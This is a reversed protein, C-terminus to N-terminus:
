FQFYAFERVVTMNTTCALILFAIGAAWIPSPRWGLAYRGLITRQEDEIIEQTNPLTYSIVAALMLIIIEPRTLASSALMMLQSLRGLGYFEDPLALLSKGTEGVLGAQGTLSQLVAGAHELTPSRFFVWAFGVAIMTMGWGLLSYRSNAVAKIGRLSRWRHNVILYLGHLGGWIIFNWSAGHWMGGLLMTIMLNAYRRLPGKRNGGLPIYLYDRLWTSLTIHWRKWFEIISTSKYPSNFNYPLRIGFMRALGVAMDSYASFDFYLGFGFALVGIWSSIFDPQASLAGDFVPDALVSLHDAILVKKALGFVFFTLGVSFDAPDFRMRSQQFQPILQQHHVIPGAILQPFFLVFLIYELYSYRPANGQYEDVLYAIQQFTHFSIALPLIINLSGFHAGLINNFTELLFNTYKFYGLLGLNLIVGLTLLGKARPPKSTRLRSLFGGLYFNTTLQAVLLLGYPISWAGYFAFSAATLYAYSLNRSFRACLFYGILSIPLFVLIFSFSNFLM